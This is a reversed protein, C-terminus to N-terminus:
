LMMGFGGPKASTTTGSGVGVGLAETEAEGETVFEAVGDGVLYTIRFLNRIRPESKRETM